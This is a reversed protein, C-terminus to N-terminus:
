QIPTWRWGIRMERASRYDYKRSIGSSEGNHYRSRQWVIYYYNDNDVEVEKGVRITVSLSRVEDRQFRYYSAELDTSPSDASWYRKRLHQNTPNESFVSFGADEDTSFLVPNCAIDGFIKGFIRHYKVIRIITQRLNLYGMKYAHNAMATLAMAAQVTMGKSKLGKAKFRIPTVDAGNFAYVGCSERFAQEGVFSKEENVTFGLQRLLTMVKPTLRTDVVIDDGYVHVPQYRNLTFQYDRHFLGRLERDFDLKSISETDEPTLGNRDLIAALFVIATYVISQVPFCLASGMPAFKLVRRSSGDPLEVISTRTAALYKAIYPPFVAKALQWSLTDSASSLDITDISSPFESGFIAAEQNNSQNTIDIADRFLHSQMEAELHLRVGQQSYQFIDPEMCISRSKYRDKAVFKLRSMELAVARAIVDESPLITSLPVGFWREIMHQIRPHLSIVANKHATTRVGREAVAGSGHKPLFPLSDIKNPLARTIIARLSHLITTPLDLNGLREEVELWDRLSNADLEPDVYHMKKLFLTVSDIYQLLRPDFTRTFSLYERFVPTDKFGSLFAGTSLHKDTHKLQKHLQDSLNSLHSMASETNYVLQNKFRQYVRFPKIENELPTDSVLSLLMLIGLAVTPHNNGHAKRLQELDSSTLTILKQGELTPLKVEWKFLM